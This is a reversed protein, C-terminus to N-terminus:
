ALGRRLGRREDCGDLGHEFIGDLGSARREAIILARVAREAIELM